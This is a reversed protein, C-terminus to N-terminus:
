HSTHTHTSAHDHMDSAPYSGNHKATRQPTELAIESPYRASELWVLPTSNGTETFHRHAHTHIHTHNTHTLSLSLSLSIAVYNDTRNNSELTHLLVVVVLCYHGNGRGSRTQSFSCQRRKQMRLHQSSCGIVWVFVCRSERALIHCRTRSEAPPGSGSGV